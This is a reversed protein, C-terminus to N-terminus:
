ICTVYILHYSLTVCILKDTTDQPIQLKNM